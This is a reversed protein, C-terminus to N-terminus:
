PLFYVFQPLSPHSGSSDANELEWICLATSLQLSTCLHFLAVSMFIRYYYLVCIHLSVHAGMIHYSSSQSPTYFKCM